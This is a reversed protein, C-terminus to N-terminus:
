KAEATLKTTGRDKLHCLRLGAAARTKLYTLAERICPSQRVTVGPVSIYAFM